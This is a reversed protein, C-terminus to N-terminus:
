SRGVTIDLHWTKKANAKVLGNKGKQVADEIKDFCCNCPEIAMNFTGQGDFPWGGENIWLGICPTENLSFSMQLFDGTNPDEFGCRGSDLKTAFVKTASDETASRIVSLDVKKGDAQQAYPWNTESLYDNFRDNKSFDMQIPPNGSLLIKTGETLAFVPHASWIYKFECPSLNYLEYNIKVTNQELSVVKVFRYPFRVGYVSMVIKEDQEKYDWPLTFVEGHDPIEAGKWPWEPYPGKVVAPFCEDIGSIDWDEYNTEYVPKKFERGSLFLYERGTDKFVLSIMKGGIEPLVALSIKENEMKIRTLNQFKDKSIETM